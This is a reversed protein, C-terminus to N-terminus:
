GTLGTLESESRAKGQSSQGAAAAGVAVVLLLLLLVLHCGRWVGPGQVLCGHPRTTGVAARAQGQDGRTPTWRDANQPTAPPTPTIQPTAAAPHRGGV